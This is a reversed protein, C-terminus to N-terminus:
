LSKLSGMGIVHEEFINPPLDKTLPDVLMKKTSIHELNITHNQVRERV